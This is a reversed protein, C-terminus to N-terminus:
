FKNKIDVPLRCISPGKVKDFYVLGIKVILRALIHGNEVNKINQQLKISAGGLRLCESTVELVAGLGASKKFDVEIRRVVFGKNHLALLGAQDIDLCRLMASRAREAFALYQAHYISGGADTDEYHVRLPYRHLAGDFGGDLCASIVAVNAEIVSPSEPANM